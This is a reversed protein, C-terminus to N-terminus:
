RAVAKIPIVQVMPRLTGDKGSEWSVLGIRRLVVLYRWATAYSMGATDAVQRVTQAGGVLALLARAASGRIMDTM